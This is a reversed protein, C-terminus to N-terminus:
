CSEELIKIISILHSTQIQGELTLTFDQFQLSAKEVFRPSKSTPEIIPLEVFHNKTPVARLTMADNHQITHHPPYTQVMLMQYAKRWSYIIQKSIGYKLALKSIVCGPAFAESLIPSKINASIKKRREKKM